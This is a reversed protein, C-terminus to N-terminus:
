GGAHRHDPHLRYRQWPDHGLVIEPRVERVTACVVRRTAADSEDGDVFGGFDVTAGALTSVAALAEEFRTRVLRELDDDANPATRGTPSCSTSRPAPPPGAPSPGAKRRVRHRRSARRDGLALLRPAPLSMRVPHGPPRSRRPRRRRLRARPRPRHVAASCPPPPTGAPPAPGTCSRSRATPPCPSYRHDADRHCPVITVIDPGVAAFRVRVRGPRPAPRRPGRDRLRERDRHHEFGATVAADLGHGPDDVREIGAAEVWTAVEPDSSVVVIPLVGAAGVVRQAAM